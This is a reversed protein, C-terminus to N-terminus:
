SSPDTTVIAPTRLSRLLRRIRSPLASAAEMAARRADYRPGYDGRVPVALARVRKGRRGLRRCVDEQKGYRRERTGGCPAGRWRSMAAASTAAM